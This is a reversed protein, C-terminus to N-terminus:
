PVRELQVALNRLWNSLRKAKRSLGGRRRPEILAAVERESYNSYYKVLEFAAAVRERVFKTDDVEEQTVPDTTLRADAEAWAEDLTLEGAKVREALDPVILEGQRTTIGIASEVQAQTLGAALAAPRSAGLPMPRKLIALLGYIEVSPAPPLARSFGRQHSRESGQPCAHRDTDEHM